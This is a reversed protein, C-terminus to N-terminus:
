CIISPTNHLGDKNMTKVKGGAFINTWFFNRPSNARSM